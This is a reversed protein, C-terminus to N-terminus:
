SATKGAGRALQIMKLARADRDQPTNAPMARVTQVAAALKPAVVSMAKLHKQARLKAGQAWGAGGVAVATAIAADADIAQAAKAYHDGTLAAQIGAKWAGAKAIMADKFNARPNQVGANYHDQNRDIGQQWRTNLDQATPYAPRLTPM